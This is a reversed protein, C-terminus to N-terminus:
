RSTFKPTFPTVIRLVSSDNRWSRERFQINMVSTLDSSSSQNVSLIIRLNNWHIRYFNWTRSWRNLTRSFDCILAFAFIFSRLLDLDLVVIPCVSDILAFFRYRIIKESMSAFWSWNTKFTSLDFYSSIVILSCPSYPFRLHHLLYASRNLFVSISLNLSDSFISFLLFIISIISFVKMIVHVNRKCISGVVSATYRDPFRRDWTSSSTLISLLTLVPHRITIRMRLKRCHESINLIFLWISSPLSSSWFLIIPDKDHQSDLSISFYSIM